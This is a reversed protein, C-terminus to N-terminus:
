FSVEGEPILNLGHIKNLPMAIAQDALNDSPLCAARLSVAPNSAPQSINVPDFFNPSDWDGM